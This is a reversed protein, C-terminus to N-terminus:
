SPGACSCRPGTAPAPTAGPRSPAETAAGVAADVDAAAGRPVQLSSRVPPRTSAGDITEGSVAPVWEGGILQTNETVLRPSARTPLPRHTM